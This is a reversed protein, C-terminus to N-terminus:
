SAGNNVGVKNEKISADNVKNNSIKKGIKGDCKM